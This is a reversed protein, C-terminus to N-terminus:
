FYWDPDNDEKKGLILHLDKRSKLIEQMMRFYMHKKRKYELENNIPKPIYEGEEKPFLYKKDYKPVEVLSEEIIGMDILKKRTLLSAKKTSAVMDNDKSITTFSNPVLVGQEILYNRRNKAELDTALKLEKSDM